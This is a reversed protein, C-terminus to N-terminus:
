PCDVARSPRNQESILPSVTGDIAKFRVRADMMAGRVCFPGPVYIHSSFLQGTDQIFESSSSGPKAYWTASPGLSVWNGGSPDLYQMKMWGDWRCGGPAGSGGFPQGNRYCLKRGVAELHAMPLTGVCVNTRSEFLVPGSRWSATSGYGSCGILGQYGHMVGRFGSDALRILEARLARRMAASHVAARGEVVGVSNAEAEQPVLVVISALLALLMLAVPM